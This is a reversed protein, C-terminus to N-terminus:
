KEASGSHTEDTLGPGIREGGLGKYKLWPGPPDGTGDWAKLAAAAVAYSGYCYRASYGDDDIGMVIGVTYLQRGLAAVSGDPMVRPQEYGFGEAMAIREQDTM